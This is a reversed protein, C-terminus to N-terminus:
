GLDYLFHKLKSKGNVRLMQIYVDNITAPNLTYQTVIVVMILQIIFRVYFEEIYALSDGVVYNQRLSFLSLSIEDEIPIDQDLSFRPTGLRITTNQGPVKFLKPYLSNITMSYILPVLLTNVLLTAILRYNYAQERESKRVHGEKFLGNFVILPTMYFNYFIYTTLTL